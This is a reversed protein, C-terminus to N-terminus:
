NWSIEGFFTRKPMPYDRDYIGNGFQTSYGKDLLNKVGLSIILHEFLRQNLNLNILFYANLKKTDMAIDPLNNWNEYYNQINSTYKISFNLNRGKGLLYDFGLSSMFDPIFAARREVEKFVMESTIFDYYTLENNKQRAFLYTANLNVKINDRLKFYIESELGMTRLYNVNQPRWLGDKTPLWTIRDNIDRMFLSFGTFLNYIPSTEVRLEYANGYEPKLEKNGYIPWYLDNFGPARFARSFSFKLWLKNTIESVIGISPSWFQGYTSNRDYRLSPNITWINLIKKVISIWIGYNRTQAFWTTDGMQASEKDAKLTDYRFDFGLVMKDSGSEFLVTTNNGLTLLSYYYDEMVIDWLLYRTHFKTNQLNNYFRTDISVRDVPKYSISFNNYWLGDAENDYRSTSTSDGFFPVQHLSDILPLPGPLGYNKHIFQTNLQLRVKSQWYGIQNKFFFGSYDNNTRGGTSSTKKGVVKYYLPAGSLRYKLFYDSSYFQNVVNGTMQQIKAEGTSLDKNNDTVINIVGGIGNAGYLSSVPAKIIEIREIDNVDISNIDAIGTQISNLPIGDILILVGSSPTGRISISTVSGPNGYDKIDIGTLNKLVEGLNSPNQNEIAERHIVITGASIDKLMVPYRTAYVVVPEVEYIQNIIISLFFLPVM